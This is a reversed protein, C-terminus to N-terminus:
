MRGMLVSPWQVPPPILTPKPSDDIAPPGSEAFQRVDPHDRFWEGHHRHNALLRHLKKEQTLRGAHLALTSIPFPCGIQLIALRAAPDLAFGVKIFQECQFFYIFGKM